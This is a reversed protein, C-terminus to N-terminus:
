RGAEEDKIVIRDVGPVTTGSRAPVGDPDFSENYVGVVAQGLRLVLAKSVRHLVLIDPASPDVHSNVISESKDGAVLFATPFDRNNPFKLYTFRGDDYAMTPAIGDSAKGIQMTYSWNVANPKVALRAEAKARDREAMQKAKAENPYRFQVRYAVRQNRSVSGNSSGPLLQLDFDYMRESTTVMLNTDWRGAEPSQVEEDSLKVSKPKLYLMNGDAKFEWGQSFGSGVFLVKESPAFVIRTGVGPLARVLVVDGDNYDVFQIRNDYRSNVPVDVALAPAAAFAM